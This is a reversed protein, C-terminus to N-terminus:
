VEKLRLWEPLKSSILDAEILPPLNSSEGRWVKMRKLIISLTTLQFIEFPNESISVRTSTMARGNNTAADHARNFIPRKAM